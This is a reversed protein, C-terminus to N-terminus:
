APYTGKFFQQGGLGRPICEHSSDMNPRIQSHSKRGDMKGADDKLQPEEMSAGTHPKSWQRFPFASHITGMAAIQIVSEAYHRSRLRRLADSHQVTRAIQADLGQSHYNPSVRATRSDGTAGSANRNRGDSGNKQLLIECHTRIQNKSSKRMDGIAVLQTLQRALCSALQVLGVSPQLVGGIFDQAAKL